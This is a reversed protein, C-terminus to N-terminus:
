MHHHLYAKLPSYFAGLHSFSTRIVTVGRHFHFVLFNLHYAFSALEFTIFQFEYDIAKDIAGISFPPTM